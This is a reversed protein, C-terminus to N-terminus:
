RLLMMIGVCVSQSGEGDRKASSGAERKSKLQFLLKRMTAFNHKNFSHAGATFENESLSVLPPSPIFLFRNHLRLM